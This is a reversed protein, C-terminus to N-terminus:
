SSRQLPVSCMSLRLLEEADQEDASSHSNGPTLLKPSGCTAAASGFLAGNDSTTGSGQRFLLGGGWSGAGNDSCAGPSLSLSYFQPPLLTSPPPPGCPAANCGAHTQTHPSRSGPSGGLLSSASFLKPPAASSNSSSSTATAPLPNPSGLEPSAFLCGRAEWDWRGGSGQEAPHQSAPSADGNSMAGDQPFRGFNGGVPSSNNNNNSLLPSSPAGSHPSGYGSNAAFLPPRALPSGEPSGVAHLDVSLRPLCQAFSSQQYGQHAYDPQPAQPPSYPGAVPSYAATAQHHVLQQHQVQQPHHHGGAFSAQMMSGGPPRQAFNGPNQGHWYQSGPEGFHQLAAAHHNPYGAGAAESVLASHAPLPMQSSCPGSTGGSASRSGPHYDIDPPRQQQQLALGAVPSGPCGFRQSGPEAVPTCPMPLPSGDAAVDPSHGNYHFPPSPLGAASCGSIQGHYAQPLQSFASGLLLPMAPPHSQAMSPNRSADEVMGTAPALQLGHSFPPLPAGECACPTVSDGAASSLALPSPWNSPKSVPGPPTMPEPVSTEAGKGGSNKHGNASSKAAAQKAGRRRASAETPGQRKSNAGGHPQTLDASKSPSAAAHHAKAAAKRSAKTSHSPAAAPEPHKADPSKHRVNVPKLVASGGDKISFAEFKANVPELVETIVEAAKQLVILVCSYHM